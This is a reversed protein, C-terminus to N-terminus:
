QKPRFDQDPFSSDKPDVIVVPVQLAAQHCANCAETLHAYAVIYQAMNQNKIANDLEFLPDRIMTEVLEVIPLAAAWSGKDVNGRVVFTPAIRRLEDLVEPKGVDGAHIILDSGRLASVAEPRLLGHTDSIVGVTTNRRAIM